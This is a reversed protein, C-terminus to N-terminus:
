SAYVIQSYTPYTNNGYLYQTYGAFWWEIKVYQSYGSVASLTVGFASVAASYTWATATSKTFTQGPGFPDTYQNPHGDMSSVDNGFGWGGDWQTASILYYVRGACANEGIYETKAFTFKSTLQWGENSWQSSNRTITQSAGTSNSVQATGDASWGGTGSTSYAVEVSSDASQGYTFTVTSDTANHMEGVKMMATTWSTAGQYYDCVAGQPLSGTATTVPVSVAGTSGRTASPVHGARLTVFQLSGASQLAPSTALPATGASVKRSFAYTLPQHHSRAIGVSFDLYGGNASAHKALEPTLTIIPAVTGRRGTVTQLIPDRTPSGQLFVEVVRHSLPAGSQTLAQVDLLVLENSAATPSAGLAAFSTAFLLLAVVAGWHRRMKM